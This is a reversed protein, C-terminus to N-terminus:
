PLLDRVTLRGVEAGDLTVPVVDAETYLHRLRYLDGSPQSHVEIQRDILNIIWYVPVGARAYIRHKIGRDQALTSHSVEIILGVVRADAKRELYDALDGRVVSIDPEPESDNLLIPQQNYVTWGILNLNRLLAATKENVYIHLNNKTMKEVLWGELLEIRNDEALVGSDIMHHYQDLTLRTTNLPQSDIDVPPADLLMPEQM